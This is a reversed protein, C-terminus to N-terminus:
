PNKRDKEDMAADNAQPRIADLVLFGAKQLRLCVDRAVRYALEAEPRPVDVEVETRNRGNVEADRITVSTISHWALANFGKRAHIALDWFREAALGVVCLFTVRWDNLKIVNDRYNVMVAVTM